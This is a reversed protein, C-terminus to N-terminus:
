AKLKSRNIPSLTPLGAHARMGEQWYFNIQKNVYDIQEQAVKSLTLLERRKELTLVIASITELTTLTGPTRKEIRIAEPTITVSLDSMRVSPLEFTAAM